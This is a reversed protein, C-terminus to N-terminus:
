IENYRMIGRLTVVILSPQHSVPFPRSHHHPFGSTQCFMSCLIVLPWQTPGPRVIISAPLLCYLVCYLWQVLVLTWAGLLLMENSFHWLFGSSLSLRPPPLRKSRHGYKCIIIHTSVERPDSPLYLSSVGCACQRPTRCFVVPEALVKNNWLRVRVKHRNLTVTQKTM